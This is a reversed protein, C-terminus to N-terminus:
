RMKEKYIHYEAVFTGTEDLVLIVSPTNETKFYASIYVYGTEPHRAMGQPVIGERLGPILAYKEASQLFTAFAADSLFNDTVTSVQTMTLPPYSPEKSVTSEETIDSVESMDSPDSVASMDESVSASSSVSEERSSEACSVALASLLLLSLLLCIKKM